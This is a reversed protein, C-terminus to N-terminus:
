TPTLPAQPLASLTSKTKSLSAPENPNKLHRRQYRASLSIPPIRTICTPTIFIIIIIFIMLVHCALPYCIWITVPQSMVGVYKKQSLQLSLRKNQPIKPSFFVNKKRPNTSYYVAPSTRCTWFCCFTRMWINIKTEFPVPFHSFPRIEVSVLYSTFQSYNACAWRQEPIYNFSSQLSGEEFM